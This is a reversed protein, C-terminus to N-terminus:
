KPLLCPFFQPSIHIDLLERLIQIKLIQSNFVLSRLYLKSIANSLVLKAPFDVILTKKSAISSFLIQLCFKHGFLSFTKSKLCSCKRNGLLLIQKRLMNGARSLQSVSPEAINRCSTEQHLWVNFSIQVESSFTSVNTQFILLRTRTEFHGESKLLCFRRGPIQENYSM